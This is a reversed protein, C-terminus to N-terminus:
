PFIPGDSRVLTLQNVLSGNVQNRLNNQRPWESEPKATRQKSGLKM